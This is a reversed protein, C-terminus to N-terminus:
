FYDLSLLNQITSLAEYIYNGYILSFRSEYISSEIRPWDVHAGIFWITSM